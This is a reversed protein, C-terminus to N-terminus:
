GLRSQDTVQGHITATDPTQACLASAFMFLAPLSKPM